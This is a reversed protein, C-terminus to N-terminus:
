ESRLAKVPNALAAKIAQLSITILAIAAALAGAASFSWWEIPIRYAFDGLWRNMAYFAIPFAILSAIAVLRLFDKSLM